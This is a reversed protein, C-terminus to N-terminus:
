YFRFAIESYIDGFFVLIDQILNIALLAVFLIIVIGLITLVISVLTKLLGYRHVVMYAIVGQFLSWVVAIKDLVDYFSAEEVTLVLSTLYLPISLLIYPLLAYATVIILDIMRGEGNMLTTFCWNSVMVLVLLLAIRSVEFGVNVQSPIGEVYLYGSFRLRLIYIGFFLAYLIAASLLSGRKEHKIDYFGDFPHFLTYKGYSLEKVLTKSRFAQVAPIRRLRIIGLPILVLVLLIIPFLIMFNSRIWENRVWEYAVSYTEKEGLLKLSGMAAHYNEELVHIKALSIYASDYNANLALVRTWAAKADSYHGERQLQFARTLLQFYETPEFSQIAQLKHDLVYVTDDILMLAAPNSLMGNLYGQAGFQGILKGEHTYAFIRCTAADLAYYTGQDNSTIDVFMPIIKNNEGDAYEGDGIPYKKGDSQLVNEGKSNLKAISRQMSKLNVTQSTVYLFGESDIDISNYETPIFRVQQRIQSETMFMQYFLQLMDPVVYPAGVFRLFSGDTDLQMLGYNIGKAIVYIRGAGDVAVKTPEFKYDPDLLAVAPREIVQLTQLTLADLVVLRASDADAIYLKGGAVSVSRPQLFSVTKGESVYTTTEAFLTFDRNCVLIRGNGTDAIYIKDNESNYEIDLPDKFPTCGIEKETYRTGATYSVAASVAKGDFDYTYPIYGGSTDSEHFAGSVPLMLLISTVCIIVSIKLIKRGMGHFWGKRTSATNLHGLMM